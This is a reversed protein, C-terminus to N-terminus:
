YFQDYGEDLERHCAVCMEAFDDLDRLYVGSINAYETYGTFNCTSCKGTRPRHRNVWVHLALYGAEDGKWNHHQEGVCKGKRSQGMKVRTEHSHTKGKFPNETHANHGRVFRNPM